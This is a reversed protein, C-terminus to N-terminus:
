KAPTGGAALEGAATMADVLLSTIIQARTLPRGGGATEALEKLRQLEGETFYLTIQPSATPGNLRDRDLFCCWAADSVRYDDGAQALAQRVLLTFETARRRGNESARRRLLLELPDRRIRLVVRSRPPEKLRPM